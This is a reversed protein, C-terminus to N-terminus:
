NEATEEGGRKSGVELSSNETDEDFWSSPSLRFIPRRAAESWCVRATGPLPPLHHTTSNRHKTRSLISSLLPPPPFRDPCMKCRLVSAYEIFHEEHPFTSQPPWIYCDYCMAAPSLSSRSKPHLASQSFCWFPRADPLYSRRAPPWSETTSLRVLGFFTPAIESSIAIEAGLSLKLV